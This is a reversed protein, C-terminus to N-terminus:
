RTGAASFKQGPASELADWIWRTHEGARSITVIEKFGDGGRNYFLFQRDVDPREITPKPMDMLAHEYDVGVPIQAMRLARGATEQDDMRGIFVGGIFNNGGRQDLLTDGPEQGAALVTLNEKRTNRGFERIMLQGSPVANLFHLEDLAVGKRQQSPLGYMWRLAWWCTLNLLAVGQRAEDQWYEPKTDPDPLIVGKLSLFTLQKDSLVEVEVDDTDPFLLAAQPERRISDLMDATALAVARHGTTSQRLADIIMGPHKPRDKFESKPDHLRQAALRLETVVHGADPSSVAFTAPLLQILSDLCLRTRIAAARAVAARYRRQQLQRLRDPPLDSVKVDRVEEVRIGLVAIESDDLDILDTVAFDDLRPERVLQYCNLSGPVGNLLDRNRSVARLERTRGLRGLRGAPDLVCWPIGAAGTKAVISGVLTSKGGGLASVVPFLGSVDFVEMNNWFDFMVPSSDFASRGINWGTRDGAVSTVAAGGAAATRLPMRRQHAKLTVTGGPLFERALKVQGFTHEMKVKAGYAKIVKETNSLCEVETRGSVAVRWWGRARGLSRDDALQTLENEVQLAQERQEILASPSDMDHEDEYHKTQAQIKALVLRIEALVDKDTRPYIHASWELPIGLADGITMWPLDRQPIEMRQMRGVTLIAVHRTVPRGVLLGTVKMTSGFPEASWDAQTLLDALDEIGWEDVDVSLRQAPAPFGLYTSRHLLWAMQAPTVPRGALGPRAILKDLTSLKDAQHRLERSLPGMRRPAVTAALEAWLPRRLFSVGLFTEKESQHETLFLRQEGELLDPWCPLTSKGVKRNHSMVMEHHTKAWAQVPFPTTTGRRHVKSGTLTALLAAENTIHNERDRDPRFSWPVRPLRYWASGQTTTLAVHGAIQRLPTTPRADRPDKSTFMRKGSM